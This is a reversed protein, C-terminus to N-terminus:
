DEEGEKSSGELCLILDGIVARAGPALVCSCYLEREKLM